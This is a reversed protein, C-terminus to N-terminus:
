TRTGVLQAGPVIRQVALVVAARATEASTARRSCIIGLVGKRGIGLTSDDFGGFLLAGVYQEPDDQPDNLSFTLDLCHETTAEGRHDTGDLNGKEGLGLGGQLTRQHRQDEAQALRIVAAAAAVIEAREESPTERMAMRFAPDFLDYLGQFVGRAAAQAWDQAASPPCVGNGHQWTEPCDFPLQSGNFLAREEKSYGVPTGPRPTDEERPMWHTVDGGLFGGKGGFTPLGDNDGGDGLYQGASVGTVEFFYWVDQGLVPLIDSVLIWPAADAM